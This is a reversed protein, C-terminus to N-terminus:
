GIFSQILDWMTPQDLLNLCLPNTTHSLSSEFNTQCPALYKSHAALPLSPPLNCHRFYNKAPVQILFAYLTVHNLSFILMSPGCETHFLHASILLEPLHGNMLLIHARQHQGIHQAKSADKSPESYIIKLGCMFSFTEIKM